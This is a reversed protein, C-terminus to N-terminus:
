VQEKSDLVITEIGAEATLELGMKDPYYELAVIKKIGSNILIKTCLSCPTATVYVTAGNCSTGHSACQAVANMEAHAARCLEHRQGSPIGLKQRMCEGTDICHYTGKPSGNYGTALIQNDRVLVAGVQRRLCTSRKSALKAIEMFYEDWSMRNDKDM